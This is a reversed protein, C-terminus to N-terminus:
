ERNSLHIAKWLLRPALRRIWMLVKAETGPLLIEKRRTLGKEVEDIILEPDAFRKNAISDRINKPNSTATAQELLPTGVLSPCVLM